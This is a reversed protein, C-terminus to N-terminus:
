QTREVVKEESTGGKVVEGSSEGKERGTNM